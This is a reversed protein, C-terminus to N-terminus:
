SSRWKPPTAGSPARERIRVPSRVERPRDPSRREARRPLEPVVSLRRPQAVYDAPSARRSELLETAERLDREKPTWEVTMMSWVAREIRNGDEPSDLQLAVKTAYEAATALCPQARFTVLLSAVEGAIRKRLSHDIRRNKCCRLLAAVVSEPTSTSALNRAWDLVDDERTVAAEGLAMVFTNAIGPAERAVRREWSPRALAGGIRILPQAYYWSKPQNAVADVLMAAGAIKISTECRFASGYDSLRMSVCKSGNEALATTLADFAGLEDGGVTEELKLVNRVIYSDAGQDRLLLTRPTGLMPRLPSEPDALLENVHRSIYDRAVHPDARLYRRVLARSLGMSDAIRSWGMRSARLRLTIPTGQRTGKVILTPVLDAGIEFTAKSLPITLLANKACWAAVRERSPPEWKGSMHEIAYKM